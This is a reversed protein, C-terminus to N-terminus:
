HFTRLMGECRDFFNSDPFFEQAMQLLAVHIKCRKEDDPCAESVLPSLNRFTNQILVIKDKDSETLSDYKFLFDLQRATIAQSHKLYLRYFNRWVFRYIGSGLEVPIEAPLTVFRRMRFVKEDRLQGLTKWVWQLHQLLSDSVGDQNSTAVHLTVGSNAYEAALAVYNVDSEQSIVALAHLALRRRTATGTKEGRIVGVPDLLTPLLEILAAIIAEPALSEM